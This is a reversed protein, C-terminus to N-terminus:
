PRSGRAHRGRRHTGAFRPPSTPLLKSRPPCPCGPLYLNNERSKNTAAALVPDRMWLSIDHPPHSRSLVIALATGWSGGGLIAIKTM